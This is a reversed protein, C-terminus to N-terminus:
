SFICLFTISFMNENVNKHLKWADTVKTNMFNEHFHLVIFNTIIYVMKHLKQQNKLQSPATIRGWILGLFIGSDM